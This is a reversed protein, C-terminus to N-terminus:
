VVVEKYEEPHEEKYIMGDLHIIVLELACIQGGLNALGIPTTKDKFAEIAEKHYRIITQLEKRLEKLTM